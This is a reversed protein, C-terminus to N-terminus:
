RAPTSAEALKRKLEDVWNLVVTLGPASVDGNTDKILLFRRGDASVDYSTRSTDRWGCSSSLGHLYDGTWLEQPRGPRLSEGLTVPVAMMQAGNRYFIERGDRRWLPDTGGDSSVQIKAGPGPWAQVYIEARGAEMASYLIWRGDPSFKGAGAPYGGKVFPRPRREGALPLVWIDGGSPSTWDYQDFALFQGDPSFSVASQWATYDVLREAPTSRDAPMWAMTMAGWQNSRYALRAGDPTWIPAHSVGDTTVRSLVDREFDYVHLDHGSGEIEVALLRNDPSLRPNLYSRAPLPLPTSRGQRDVWHLSRGTKEAAGAAYVLDGRRSIDFYAVGVNSSMLVQDLVKVPTGAVSLTRTDFPLAYLSGARAYVLHGSPAYRPFTGGEVLTTRRRTVLDVVDIRADDFSEMDASVVTVLLGKDGPLLRAYRHTREQREADLETVWEKDGGAAPARFIPGFMHHSGYVYGDASWDGSFFLDISTVPVRPGGRAPLKVLLGKAASGMALWQGDPSYVPIDLDDINDLAESNPDVLRRLRHGQRTVYLISKSDPSFTLYLGGTAFARSGAPFPIEFRVVRSDGAPAAGIWTWGGVAGIGLLLAAAAATALRAVHRRPRAAVPARADTVAGALTEELELRADAAHHLRGHPDKVLCRRLLRRVSEPTGAPLAAWDPERDLVSVLVETTTAGGFTRRGTLMEYLVCGFAWIDARQDVARGSAQEPPMYAVTGMVVGARTLGAEATETVASEHLAGAPDLAKALGFDLLKVSGGASLGVNAPKLDRHIIGLAHACELAEAAQRAVQLAERMPLPGRALREALTEGPVYELVLFAQGGAHELGHISAINPHNLAGLLRAEREFRVRRDPDGLQDDRLVKIAVRRGLRTDTACYVVGMGGAGLESDITYHGLTRGLMVM